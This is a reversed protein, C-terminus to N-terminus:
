RSACNASPRGGSIKESGCAVISSTPEAFVMTKSAGSKFSSSGTKNRRTRSAACFRVLRTSSNVDRGVPRVWFAHFLMWTSGPLVASAALVSSGAITSCSLLPETAITTPRMFRASDASETTCANLSIMCMAGCAFTSGASRRPLTRPAMVAPRVGRLPAASVVCMRSSAAAPFISHRTNSPASGSLSTGSASKARRPILPARVMMEMSVKIVCDVACALMTNGAAALPSFTPVVVLMSPRMLLTAWFIVGAPVDRGSQIIATSNAVSIPISNPMSDYLSTCLLM